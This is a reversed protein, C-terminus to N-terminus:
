MVFHWFIDFYIISIITLWTWTFYKNQWWSINGQEKWVVFNRGSVTFCERTFARSIYNAFQIIIMKFLMSFYVCNVWFKNKFQNKYTCLWYLWVRSVKHPGKLALSLTMSYVEIFADLIKGDTKISTNVTQRSNKKLKMTVNNHFVTSRRLSASGM